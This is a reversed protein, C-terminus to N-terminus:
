SQSDEAEAKALEAQLAALAGAGATATPAAKPAVGLAAHLEAEMDAFSRAPPSAPAAAAAAVRPNAGGPDATRPRPVAGGRWQATLEPRFTCAERTVAEQQAKLAALTKERAAQEALLAEHVPQGPVRRRAALQKSRQSIRPKFTPNDARVTRESPVLYARPARGPEDTVVTMLEVFADERISPPAGAEKLAGAVELVDARVEASLRELDAKDLDVELAGGEDLLKFIQRFRRARAAAAVRRSRATIAGKARKLAMEQAEREALYETRDTKDHRQAYLFNGVSLGEPNRVRAPGRGVAPRFLPQGTEEDVPENVVEKLAALHEERARGAELLREEIPVDGEDDQEDATNGGQRAVNPRFTVEEPFWSAYEEYRMRRREADQYLQEHTTAGAARLTETRGRMLEKSRQSLTPQFTCGELEKQDRERRLAEVRRAETASMRSTAALRECAPTEASRHMTRAHDSIQPVAQLAEEEAAAREAQVAEARRRRAESQLVGEVYLREGYNGFEGATRGAMMMQSAATMKNAARERRLVREEAAAKARAAAQRRTRTVEALAYLREHVERAAFGGGPASRPRTQPKPKPKPKPQAAVPAAKAATNTATGLPARVPRSGAAKKKKKKKGTAQRTAEAPSQAASPAASSAASTAAALNERIHQALPAVVAGALAHAAAFAAAADDASDGERLEIRGSRGGGLEVTM